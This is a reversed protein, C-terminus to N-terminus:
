VSETDHPRRPVLASAGTLWGEFEIPAVNLTDVVRPLTLVNSAPSALGAQATTASTVGAEALWPLFDAHHFGRPYCFHRPETNVINRLAARNAYIERLFLARDHPTRHRHTHLQFDIGKGALEAVEAPRLLQLIRQEIIRDYDVGIARGLKEAFANKEEAGMQRAEAYRLMSQLAHFRGLATTTNWREDEGVFPRADIVSQGSKWLCYQVFPNFVPMAATCYFTTLYVTAPFGYQQLLPFARAQFDFLGDDFTLCVSREPLTNAYLREVADGLPLVTYGGEKLMTLREEFLEPNMFFQPSWRHEDDISVGHYCLILLRHRRWASDRYVEFLGLGKMTRLASRKLKKLM